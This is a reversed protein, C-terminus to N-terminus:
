KADGYRPAVSVEAALPVGPMWPPPECLVVELSSAAGEAAEEPVTYVLEDHVQLVLRADIDSVARAYMCAAFMIVDRAVAQTANHFLKAGYVNHREIKRTTEDRTLYSYQGEEDLRLDTYVLRRGSPLLMTMAAMESSTQRELVVQGGCVREQGGHHYVAKLARQCAQHEPKYDTFTSHFQGHLEACTDRDIDLDRRLCYGYFGTWRGKEEDWRGAGAGFQMQLFAEKGRQREPDGKTVPKGFMGTALANYVDGERCATLVNTAGALWAGVRVEIQSLDGVLITRGKPATIAGRISDEGPKSRPINQMNIGGEGVLRGTQTWGYGLPIPLAGSKAYNLLRTSRAEGINNKEALRLRTLLRVSSNPHEKLERLGPDTKAFAPIMKDGKTNPKMPVEAGLRTLAASLKPTSRVLRRLKAQTEPSMGELLDDGRKSEREIVRKLMAKDGRLQPEMFVRALM